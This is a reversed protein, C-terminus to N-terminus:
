YSFNAWPHDAAVPMTTAAGNGTFGGAVVGTMDVVPGFRNDNAINWNTANFRATNRAIFSEGVDVKYGIDNVISQNEEIRNGALRTHIGAGDLVGAGDGNATCNNRTITCDNPAEIGDFNNGRVTCGTVTSGVSLLIGDGSNDTVTCDEVLSGQGVRIGLGNDDAPTGFTTTNDTSTCNAVTSKELTYIGYSASSANTNTRATCNFLSCGKDTHIGYTSTNSVAACNTLTSGDSAHIAYFGANSTASCNTLTSADGTSIGSDSNSYAACNILTSFSGADIGVSNSYAYCNQLVGSGLSMLIGTNGNDYAVCNSVVGGIRGVIGFSSDHATCHEIRAGNGGSIGISTVGTVSVTLHSYSGGTAGLDDVGGVFSGNISGNRITCRHATADVTVADGGSGAQRSIDFGELDLTVGAATIHIGNPLSVAIRAPLYYSGPQSIVFHYNADGPTFLPGLPRRPEIQDLSRMTATPPGPPTLSGQALLFSSPQLLFAFLAAISLTRKM